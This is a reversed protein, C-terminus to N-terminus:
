IISFGQFSLAFQSSNLKFILLKLLGSLLLHLEHFLGAARVEDAEDELSQLRLSLAKGIDLSRSLYLSCSFLRSYVNYVRQLM